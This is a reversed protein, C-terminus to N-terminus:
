NLNKGTKEQESFSILRLYLLMQQRQRMNPAVVSLVNVILMVVGLMVIFVCRELLVIVM